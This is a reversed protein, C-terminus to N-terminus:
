WLKGKECNDGRVEVKKGGGVEVKKGGGGVKRNEGPPIFSCNRPTFKSVFSVFHLAFKKGKDVPTESKGVIRIKFLLKKEGM